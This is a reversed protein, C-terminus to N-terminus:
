KKILHIYYHDSLSSILLSDPMKSEWNKLTELIKQKDQFFHELYSPPLFFGVPSVQITTFMGNSIEMLQSPSHYFIDLANNGIVATAKKKLRRFAISPNKFLYYFTEWICFRPMIVAVISGGTKMLSYAKCLFKLFDMPSICNLGGFNSFILDYEDDGKLNEIQHFGSQVFTVKESNNLAMKRKGMEIMEHSIDSALVRHGRKAFWIADEGTGCNVELINLEKNLLKSKLLLSHVRNRQMKGVNSHTFEADYHAAATDFVAIM